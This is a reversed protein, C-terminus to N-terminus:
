SNTWMPLLPTLVGKCPPYPMVKAKYVSERPMYPVLIGSRLGPLAVEM